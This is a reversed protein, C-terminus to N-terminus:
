IFVKGSSAASLKGSDEKRWTSVASSLVSTSELIMAKKEAGVNGWKSRHTPLANPRRGPISGEYSDPPHEALPNISSGNFTMNTPERKNIVRWNEASGFSPDSVLSRSANSSADAWPAGGSHGNAVLYAQEPPQLEAGSADSVTLTEWNPDSAESEAITSVIPRTNRSREHPPLALSSSTMTSYTDVGTHDRKGYIPTYSVAAAQLISPDRLESLEDMDKYGRPVASSTYGNTPFVQHTSDSISQTDSPDDDHHMSKAGSMYPVDGEVTVWSRRGDHSAPPSTGRIVAPQRNPLALGRVTAAEYDGGGLTESSRRGTGTSIRPVPEMYAAATPKLMHKENSGGIPMKESRRVSAISGDRLGGIVATSPKGSKSSLYSRSARRRRLFCVFLMLVLAIFLIPIVTALLIDGTSLRRADAASGAGTPKGTSTSTPTSTTVATSTPTGDPALFNVHLKESESLTSSKSKANVTIDFSGKANKPVTGSVKFGDVHLWSETPSSNVDLDIDSPDRFYSRLDVDFKGGPRADMDEFTSKFLATGVNVVVLVDLTASLKNSYTVTFNSSHDGGRPTGSVKGTAKDYNLWQPMDETTVDLEASSVPKGDLDIANELGDFNVATGRTANITVVPNETTLKQSGVLINFTLSTAAFGVIDSAVLSFGFTQPPLVLSEFSPTKGSFTLSGADFKVWAPLPSNNSSVAYYNLGSDKGFTGKDFRYSFETSPYSIISSPASFNGFNKIQKALPIEVAPGPKRSVVLTADMTTSGTEDTAVIGVKQGVVDGDAVDSSKPTGYLRRNASEISLWSPHNDGLTYTINFPSEFTHSSFSYTFFTNIRAALPLQANLPFAVTPKGCALSAFQLAVLIITLAAM